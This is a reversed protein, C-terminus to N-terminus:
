IGGKAVTGRREWTKRQFYGYRRVYGFLGGDGGRYYGLHEIRWWFEAILAEKWPYGYRSRYEPVLFRPLTM